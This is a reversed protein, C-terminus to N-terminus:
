FCSSLTITVWAWTWYVWIVNYHLNACTSRYIQLCAELHLIVSSLGDPYTLIIKLTIRDLKLSCLIIEVLCQTKVLATMIADPDFPVRAILPLYVAETRTRVLHGQEYCIATHHDSIENYKLIDDQSFFTWYKQGRNRRCNIVLELLLLPNFADKAM